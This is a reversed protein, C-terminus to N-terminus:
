RVVATFRSREAGAVISEAEMVSFRRASLGLAASFLAAVFGSTVYNVPADRQGWKKIWGADVHSAALEAEGSDAGLSLVKMQGLGSFAFYQEGISVRDAISEIGNERFYDSLFGFFTDESVERLLKKADLMGCDEALQAYLCIYHHCHLVHTVGNISHRCTRPDFRRDVTLETKKTIAM